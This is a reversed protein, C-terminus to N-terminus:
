VERDGSKKLFESPDNVLIQAIEVATPADKIGCMRLFLGAKSSFDVFVFLQSHFKAAESHSLYCETPKYLM